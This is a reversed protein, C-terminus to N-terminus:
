CRSAAIRDILGARTGVLPVRATPLNRDKSRQPGSDILGARTGVLPVRATPLNRDKSRQPGSDILGARTGCCGPRRASSGSRIAEETRRHLEKKIDPDDACRAAAAIADEPVGAGRLAQAIVEPRTVDEDRQWYAAFIAEIAAPWFTRPLGLLTRLALVTRM